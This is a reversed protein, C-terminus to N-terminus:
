KADAVASCGTHCEIDASFSPQATLRLRAGSQRERPHEWLGHSTDLLEM